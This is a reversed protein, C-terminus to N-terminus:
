RRTLHALRAVLNHKIDTNAKIVDMVLKVEHPHDLVLEIQATLRPLRDQGSEAIQIIAEGLERPLALKAVAHQIQAIYATSVGANFDLAEYSAMHGNEVAESLSYNGTSLTFPQARKQLAGMVMAPVSNTMVITANSPLGSAGSVKGKPGVEKQRDLILAHNTGAIEFKGSPNSGGYVGVVIGKTGRKTLVAYVASAWSKVAAYKNAYGIFIHADPASELMGYLMACTHSGELNLELAKLLPVESRTSASNYFAGMEGHGMGMFAHGPDAAHHVVNAKHPTRVEIGGRYTLTGYEYLRLNNITRPDVTFGKMTQMTTTVAPDHMDAPDSLPGEIIFDGSRALEVMAAPAIFVASKSFSSGPSHAEVESKVGVAHLGMSKLLNVTRVIFATDGQGMASKGIVYFTAGKHSKLIELNHEFHSGGLHETVSQAREMAATMANSPHHQTRRAPPRFAGPATAERDRAAVEKARNMMEALEACMRTLHDIVADDDVEGSDHIANAVTEAREFLAFFERALRPPISSSHTLVDDFHELM